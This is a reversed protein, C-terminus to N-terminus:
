FQEFLVLFELVLIFHEEVLLPVAQVFDVLSLDLQCLLLLGHRGTEAFSGAM